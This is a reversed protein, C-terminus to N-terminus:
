SHNWWIEFKVILHWLLGILMGIAGIITNSDNIGDGLWGICVVMFSVAIMLTSMLFSLKLSKSTQEVTQVPKDIPYACRPCLAAKSSVQSGCEPCKILAM